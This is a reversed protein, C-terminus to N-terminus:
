KTKKRTTKKVAKEVVPEKVAIEIEEIAKVVTVFGGEVLVDKRAADVEWQEGKQPFYKAVGKAKSREGDFKNAKIYKDTAEVLYRM